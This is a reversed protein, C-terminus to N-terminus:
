LDCNDDDNHLISDTTDRGITSATSMRLSARGGEGAGGAESESKGGQVAKRVLLFPNHTITLAPGGESSGYAEAIKMSLGGTQSVSSERDRDLGGGLSQRQLEEFDENM